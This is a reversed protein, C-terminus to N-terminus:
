AVEFNEPFPNQIADVPNRYINLHNIVDRAGSAVVNMYDTVWTVYSGHIFVAEAIVEALNDETPSAKALSFKEKLQNVRTSLQRAQTLYTTHDNVIQNGITAMYHIDLGGINTKGEQTLFKLDFFPILNALIGLTGNISNICEILENLQAEAVIFPNSCPLHPSRFSAEAHQIQKQMQRATQDNALAQLHPNTSM